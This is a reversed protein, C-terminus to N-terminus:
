KFCESCVTKSVASTAITVLGKSRGCIESLGLTAGATAFKSAGFIRVCDYGKSMQKGDAGYGCCSAGNIYGMVIATKGSATMM